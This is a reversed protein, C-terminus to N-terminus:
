HRKEGTAQHHLVSAVRDMQRSVSERLRKRSMLLHWRRGGLQHWLVASRIGALLLARVKSINIPNQLYTMEGRVQIRLPLTSLTEQYLDALNSLVQQHTCSFHNAQRAIEQLQEGIHELMRPQHSLKRELQLLSLSYRLIEFNETPGDMAGKRSLIESCLRLGTMLNEVKGYVETTDDPNFVFLSSIATEFSDQPHIGTRAIKLVLYASQFIGALALM